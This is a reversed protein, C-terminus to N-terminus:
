FGVCATCYSGHQELRHLFVVDGCATVDAKPVFFSRTQRSVNRFCSFSIQWYVLHYCCFTFNYHSLFLQHAIHFHSYHRL